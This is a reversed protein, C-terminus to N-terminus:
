PHLFNPLFHHLLQEAVGLKHNKDVLGKQHITKYLIPSLNAFNSPELKHSSNSSTNSAHETWCTSLYNHFWAKSKFKDGLIHCSNLSEGCWTSKLHSNPLVVLSFHGTTPKSACQKRPWHLICLKAYQNNMCKEQRERTKAKPRASVLRIIRHSTSFGSLKCEKETSKDIVYMCQISTVSSLLHAHFSTFWPSHLVVKSIIQVQFTVLLWM